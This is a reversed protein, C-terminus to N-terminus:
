YAPRKQPAHDKCRRKERPPAGRPTKHLGFVRVDWLPQARSPGGLGPPGIEFRSLDPHGKLAYEKQPRNEWPTAMPQFHIAGKPADSEASTRVPNRFFQLIILFFAISLVLVPWFAVPLFQYIAVNLAALIVATIILM